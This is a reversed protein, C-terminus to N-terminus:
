LRCPLQAFNVSHQVALNHQLIEGQRSAQRLVASISTDLLDARLKNKGGNKGCAFLNPYIKLQGCLARYAIKERCPSTLCIQTLSESFDTVM